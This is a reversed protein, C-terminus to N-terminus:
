NKFRDAPIWRTNYRTRWDALGPTSSPDPIAKISISDTPLPLVRDGGIVNHDADRDWGVSYFFFSRTQGPPIPPLTTADFSLTVSDGANLIALKTDRETLLELM